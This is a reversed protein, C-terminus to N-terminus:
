LPLSGLVRADSSVLEGGLAEVRDRLRDPLPEAAASRSPSGVAETERVAITVPAGATAGNLAELWCLYVTTM